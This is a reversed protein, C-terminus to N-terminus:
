IKNMGDFIIKRYAKLLESQATDLPKDSMNQSIRTSIINSVNKRKPPIM